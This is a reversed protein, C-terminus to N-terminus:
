GFQLKICVSTAATLPMRSQQLEKQAGRDGMMQEGSLRLRHLPLKQAAM